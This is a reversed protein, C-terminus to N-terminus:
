VIGAFYGDPYPIPRSCAEVERRTKASRLMMVAYRTADMLDDRGLDTPPTAAVQEIPM